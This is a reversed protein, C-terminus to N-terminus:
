VYLIFTHLFLLLKKVLARRMRKWTAAKRKSDMPDNVAISSFITHVIDSCESMWMSWFFFIAGLIVAFNALSFLWSIQQTPRIKYMLLRIKYMLKIYYIEIRECHLLCYFVIVLTTCIRHNFNEIITLEIRKKWAQVCVLILM